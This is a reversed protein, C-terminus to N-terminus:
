QSKRYKNIEGEKGSDSSEAELIIKLTEQLSDGNQHCQRHLAEVLTRIIIVDDDTVDFSM